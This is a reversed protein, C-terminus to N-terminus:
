NTAEGLPAPTIAENAPSLGYGLRGSDDHRNAWPSHGPRHGELRRTMAAALTPAVEDSSHGSALGATAASRFTLEVVNM